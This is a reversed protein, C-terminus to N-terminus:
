RAIEPEEGEQSAPGRDARPLRVSVRCGDDTNEFSVTGGVRRVVWNVLWLGVGSSHQLPTERGAGLTEVEQRDIGPGNDIVDIVVYSEDSKAENVTLTVAPEASDNHELANTVLEEFAAVLSEGGAVTVTNPLEISVTGSSNSLSGTEDEGRLESAIDLSAEAETELLRSLRGVKDSRAVIDDVTEIAEELREHNGDDLTAQTLEINGRVLNLENRVNHRLLRNLVDLRQERQRRETVDRLSVVRGSFAGYGRYLTSISIDYYRVKGDIELEIDGRETIEDLADALAPRLESLPQGLYEEKDGLLQEGTPNLDVVRDSDDLIVIADELETLVAERGIDRTVPAVSLLESDLLAVTLIMGALVYAIGNPNLGPQLVGFLYMANAIMPVTIAGLLATSQWQFPQNSRLLVRALLGVGAALLLYSYAQHGWFAVGFDFGFTIFEGVRPLDPNSWVYGHNDNTWVLVLFVVPEALLAATTGRTLWDEKGTYELITALWAVPIAVSLSLGVQTWLRMTDIDGDAVTVGEAVAWFSAVVLFFTLPKAGPSERNVWSFLAFGMGVIAALLVLPLYLSAVM